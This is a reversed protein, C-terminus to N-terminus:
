SKKRAVLKEKKVISLFINLKMISFNKYQVHDLKNGLLSFERINYLVYDEKKGYLKFVIFIPKSIKMDIQKKKEENYWRYPLFNDTLINNFSVTKVSKCDIWVKLAEPDPLYTLDGYFSTAAGKGRTAKAGSGATRWFYDKNVTNDFPEIFEQNVCWKSLIKAIKIEYSNGKKKQNGQKM